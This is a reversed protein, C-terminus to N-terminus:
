RHSLSVRRLKRATECRKVELGDIQAMQLLDKRRNVYIRLGLSNRLSLLVECTMGQGIKASGSANRKRVDAKAERASSTSVETM